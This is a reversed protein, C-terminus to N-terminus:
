TVCLDCRCLGVCCFHEGGSLSKGSGGGGQSRSRRLLNLGLLSEDRSRFLHILFHGAAFETQALEFVDHVHGVPAGRNWAEDLVHVDRFQRLRKFEQTGRFSGQAFSQEDFLVALSQESLRSPRRGSFQDVTAARLDAEHQRQQVREIRVHQRADGRVRDQDRQRNGADGTGGDDRDDFRLTVERRRQLIADHADVFTGLQVLLESRSSFHDVTSRGHDAHSDEQEGRGDELFGLMSELQNIYVYM